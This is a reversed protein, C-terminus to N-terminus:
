AAADGPGMLTQIGAAREIEAIRAEAAERAQRERGLQQNAEYLRDADSKYGTMASQEKHPASSGGGGMEALEAQYKTVQGDAIVALKKTMDDGKGHLIESRRQADAILHPLQERRPKAKFINTTIDM